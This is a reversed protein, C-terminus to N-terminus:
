LNQQEKFTGFGFMKVNNLSKFRHCLEVCFETALAGLHKLLLLTKLIAAPIHQRTGLPCYFKRFMFPPRAVNHLGVSRENSLGSSSPWFCRM